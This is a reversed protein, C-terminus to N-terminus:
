RAGASLHHAVTQGQVGKPRKFLRGTHAANGSGGMFRADARSGDALMDAQQFVAKALLQEEAPGVPPFQGTCSAFKEQAHRTGKGSQGFGCRM